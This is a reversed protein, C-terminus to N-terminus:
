ASSSRRGPRQSTATAPDLRELGLMSCPAPRRRRPPRSRGPAPRDAPRQRRPGQRRERRGQGHGHLDDLRRARRDPDLTATRTAADYSVTAPVQAGGPGRLEVTAGTIPPRREDARQVHGDRQQRRPVGTPAPRRALPRTVTPPTTDAGGDTDFVVDVWYNSSKFTSTPFRREAGYRTSATAATSATARARAAARQRRRAARLLRRRRRLPRRARPVLRRLDHEATVAVPTPSADGAALGLRDRRHLDGDGAAHGDRTWLNGVHTGTNAPARTSASAPSRLRRRRLPVQVGLEVPAPRRRRRRRGADDRRGLDLVPLAGAGVTSPSAPASPTELNGSDDVARVTIRSTGPRGHRGAHLTWSARGDAPHWTAGGDISVEVGGVVGGGADTATGTIPSRAHRRRRDRRGRALHDDLDARTTDTSATAPSSAREAAHRAARGHRRVPQGDGAAHRADAADGGRDHDDDLGWSWQVTGAGFVLAGSPARYLTLHHTATGPATPRATTRCSRPRRQRTTTSLRVLGAPRFGNDLDEDWEYGLTGTPLTASRGPPSRRSARHQALLADQRRGGAGAIADHRSRQGHLDHRDARERAPRRRGAPQLAPRALHRDLRRAAPRDQRQRADGQLLRAHPVAHGLRRHETEWRTKWFVENGSFFALNCAPTARRRSTPASRRGVLVRRPRGVPLGQPELLEAGRRDTDVGTIYSVDYGNRELWRVM